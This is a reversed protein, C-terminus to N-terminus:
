GGLAELAATLRPWLIDQVPPAAIAEVAEGLFARMLVARAEREPIGRARLYFLQDADLAGIATGHGCAVDDAFIELEPKADAEAHPSVLLAKFLQHSDSKLAGRRVTVKGQHVARGHGGVISKFLQRTATHPQNHRIVTTTDAIGEGLVAVNHVRAAAGPADLQIQADLRMLRARLAAYLADYGAGRALSVGLTTVHGAESGEDQLRVHVLKANPELRIELGLNTFTQGSTERGHSEFLALSAGDEVIVLVRSHSMVPREGPATMFRLHVATATGKSVKLAAGGRMLALSVAGLPHEADAALKGLHNEVWLPARAGVRALDFAEIGSPLMLATLYGNVFTLEGDALAAFLSGGPVAGDVRAAPELDSPLVAALDTYKWAETRRTPLGTLAYANMAKERREDLWALGAGPLKGRHAAFDEQFLDPPPNLKLALATM